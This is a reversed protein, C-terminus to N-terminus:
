QKAEKRNLHTILEELQLDKDSTNFSESFGLTSELKPKPRSNEITLNAADTIYQNPISYAWNNALSKVLTPSWTGRSASGFVWAREDYILNHALYEAASATVESTIIIINKLQSFNNMRNSASIKGLAVKEGQQDSYKLSGFSRIIDTNSAIIHSAVLNAFKISGGQNFRLDIILSAAKDIRSGINRLATDLADRSRVSYNDLPAFNILRQIQIYFVKDTVPGAVISKNAYNSIKAGSYFKKLYNISQERSNNLWTDTIKKNAGQSEHWLKPKTSSIFVHSDKLEDVFQSFIEFIKSSLTSSKKNNNAAKLAEEKYHNLLQAKNLDRSEFGTYYRDFSDFFSSIMSDWQLSGAPKCRKPLANIKTLHIREPTSFREIAFADKSNASPYINAYAIRDEWVPGVAPLYAATPTFCDFRDIQYSIYYENRIDLILGIEHAEWIGKWPHDQIQSDQSLIISNQCLLTVIAWTLLHKHIFSKIQLILLGSLSELLTMFLHLVNKNKNGDNLL